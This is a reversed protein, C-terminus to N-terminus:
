NGNEDSKEKIDLKSPLYIDLLTSFEKSNIEDLWRKIKAPTTPKRKKLLRQLVKEQEKM